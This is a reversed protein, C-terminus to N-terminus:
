SKGEQKRRWIRYCVVLGGIMAVLGLALMLWAPFSSVAENITAIYQASESVIALGSAATVAGSQMTRSLVIPRECDPDASPVGPEILEKVDDWTNPAVEGWIAKRYLDAERERRLTLGRVVMKKGNITAKNWLAFASAAADYNGLNHQKLVTSKKFADVGINYALSVMAGFPEPPTIGKILPRIKDTFYRLENFFDQDADEQTVTDGAKVNGTHGWGITWVGAIDKYAKLKCGESQAILCVAEWCIPWNLSKDPLKM